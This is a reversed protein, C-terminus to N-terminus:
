KSGSLISMAEKLADTEAQRADQRSKFNKTIFDCNAHLDDNEDSLNSLKKNTAALDKKAMNFDEDAKARNGSATATQESKKTLAKNSDLMFTEYASQSDQEAKMADAEAKKSDALVDELLSVVKAGGANDGANDKFKPEQGVSVAAGAGHLRHHSRGNQLLAYVQKMTTLAKNLVMQTMRQDTITQQYDNNAAERNESARKMQNKLEAVEGKTNKMDSNLTGITKKLDDRKTELNGQKNEAAKTDKTNENFEKVCWNKHEVEDQQQKTLEDVMGSIAKKVETFADLRVRGALLALIPSDAQAAARELTSAASQRRMKDQEKQAETSSIQLFSLTKDFLKFVEESNLTGIASEVAQIETMRDKLRVDYDKDHESCKKRLNQLFTVDNDRQEKSDKLDKVAQAQKEGTGGLRKDLDIVDKKGDAIQDEKASKLAKYDSVARREEVNIENLHDEFDELMQNLIGFIQGSQSGYSKMGPIALFSTAGQADHLFDKLAARKLNDLVGMQLVRAQQLHSAVQRIELLGTNQKSLVTIADKSAKIAVITDAKDKAFAKNDKMRMATADALGKQDSALEKKTEKRKVKMEALKGAAEGLFAKLQSIKIEGDDIAKTKEKENTDCFCDMLEHVDKDDQLDAQLQKNMDQLMNVIKMVPRAEAQEDLGFGLADKSGTKLAALQWVLALLVAARM